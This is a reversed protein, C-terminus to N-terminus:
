GLRCGKRASVGHRGAEGPLQALLITLCKLRVEAIPDTTANRILRASVSLPDREPFSAAIELLKELHERVPLADTRRISGLAGNALEFGFSRLGDSALRRTESDLYAMAEAPTSQVRVRQDFDGDGTEVDAGTFLRALGTSEKALVM